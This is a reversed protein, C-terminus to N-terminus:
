RPHQEGAPLRRGRLRDVPVPGTRRRTADPLRQCERRFHGAPRAIGLRRRIRQGAHIECPPTQLLRRRGSPVLEALRRLGEHADSAPIAREVQDVQALPFGLYQELPGLRRDVLDEYKLHFVGDNHLGAVDLSFQLTELVQEANSLPLGDNNVSLHAELTLLDLLSVSGPDQEKARLASCFQAFRWFDSTIATQYSRYLLQSVLLDRPDRKLFIRRNFFACAQPSYHDCDNPPLILVKSLVNKDRLASSDEPQCTTPEFLCVADDPLSEKLIQYLITTGSKGMALILIKAPEAPAADPAAGQDAVNPPLRPLPKSQAANQLTDITQWNM